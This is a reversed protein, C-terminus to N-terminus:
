KRSRLSTGERIASVMRELAVATSTMAEGQSKAMSLITIQDRIHQRYLVACATLCFVAVFPSATQAQQLLWDM